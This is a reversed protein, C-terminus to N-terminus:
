LSQDGFHEFLRCGLHTQKPFPFDKKLIDIFVAM